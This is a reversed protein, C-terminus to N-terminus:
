AEESFVTFAHNKKERQYPLVENARWHGCNRWNIGGGAVWDTVSRREGPSLGALFWEHVLKPDLLPCRNVLFQVKGHLVRDIAKRTRTEAM